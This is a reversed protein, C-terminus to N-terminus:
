NYTFAAPLTCAPAIGDIIVPALGTGAVAPADVTIVTAGTVFNTAAVGSIRVGTASAFGGGTITITTGATGNNPVLTLYRFANKLTTKGEPTRTTMSVLGTAHAPVTVSVTKNTIITGLVGAVGGLTIRNTKSLSLGKVTAPINGTTLACSPEIASTFPGAAYSYLVASVPLKVDSNVPDPYSFDVKLCMRGGCTAYSVPCIDINNLLVGSVTLGSMWLQHDNRWTYSVTRIDPELGIMGSVVALSLTCGSMGSGEVVSRRFDESLRWLATERPSLAQEAQVGVLYSPVLKGILQSGVAAIASFLVISVVMEMLTFGNRPLHESSM